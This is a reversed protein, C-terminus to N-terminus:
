DLLGQWGVGGGDEGGDSEERDGGEGDGGAGGWFGRRRRQQPSTEAADTSRIRTRRVGNSRDVKRKKYLLVRVGKKRENVTSDANGNNVPFEGFKLTIQNRAIRRSPKTGFICRNIKNTGQIHRSCLRSSEALFPFRQKTCCITITLATLDANNVAPYSKNITEITQKLSWLSVIGM